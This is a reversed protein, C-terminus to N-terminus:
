IQAGLRDPEAAQEGLQHLVLRLRLPQQRQEQQQVGAAGGADGRAARQDTQGFLVPPEPVRVQDSFALRDDARTDLAAPGARVLDLGGDVSDM